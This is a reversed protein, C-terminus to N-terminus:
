KTISIIMFFKLLWFGKDISGVWITRSLLLLSKQSNLVQKLKSGNAVNINQIIAVPKEALAGSLEKLIPQLVEAFQAQGLEEEGEAGHKKM